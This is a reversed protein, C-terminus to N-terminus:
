YNQLWHVRVYDNSRELIIIMKIIKFGVIIALGVCYLLFCFCLLHGFLYILLYNIQKRKM